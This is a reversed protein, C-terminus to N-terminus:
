IIEDLVPGEQMRNHSSILGLMRNQPSNSYTSM